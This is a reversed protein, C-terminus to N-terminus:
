LEILLAMIAVAVLVIGSVMKGHHEMYHWNIRNLGKLGVYVLLVMTFVTAFLFVLSTTVIGSLGFTGAQLYFADLELCPSFFMALAMSGLIAWRSKKRMENSVEFNHHHHDHGIFDLAIYILGILILMCPFVLEAFEEYTQSIRLGAAGILSGVVITSLIHAAGIIITANLTERITWKESKGLAIIPLWHNPICAHVLSLLLSGSIIQWM